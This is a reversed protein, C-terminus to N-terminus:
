WHIARTLFKYNSVTEKWVIIWQENNNNNNNNHTQTHSVCTSSSSSKWSNAQEKMKSLCSGRAPKASQMSWAPPGILEQRAEILVPPTSPHWIHAEVDSQKVQTRPVLSLNDPGMASARVWQTMESVRIWYRFWSGQCPSTRPLAADHVTAPLLLCSAWMSFPFDAQTVLGSM